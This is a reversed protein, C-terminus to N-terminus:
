EWNNRRNANYPLRMPQRGFIRCASRGSSLPL